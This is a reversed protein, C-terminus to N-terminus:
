WSPYLPPCAHSCFFCVILMLSYVCAACGYGTCVYCNIVAINELCVQKGRKWSTLQNGSATIVLDGHSLLCSVEGSKLLGTYYLFYVFLYIFYVHKLTKNKIKLVSM